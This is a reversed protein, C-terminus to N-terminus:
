LRASAQFRVAVPCARFPSRFRSRRNRKIEQLCRSPFRACRVPSASIPHSAKASSAKEGAASPKLIRAVSAYTSESDEGHLVDSDRRILSCCRAAIRGGDIRTKGRIGPAIRPFDRRWEAVCLLRRCQFRQREQRGRGSSSPAIMNVLRLVEAPISAVVSTRPALLAMWASSAAALGNGTGRKEPPM